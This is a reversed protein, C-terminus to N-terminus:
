SQPFRPGLLIVLAGAVCLAAGLWDSALPRTREVLGLWLLSTIIYIGGYAAYARGAAAVDVQTLLWAFLALLVVGPLLWAIHRGDRLWIWFCFCGAIEATAAFLYILATRSM